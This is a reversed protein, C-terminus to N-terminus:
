RALWQRIVLASLAPVGFILLFIPFEDGYSYGARNVGFWMNVAAGILWLPIFALAAKRRGNAGGLLLCIALLAFGAALVMLTHM